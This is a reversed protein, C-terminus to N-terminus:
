FSPEANGKQFELWGDKNSFGHGVLRLLTDNVLSFTLDHSFAVYNNTKDFVAYLIIRNQGTSEDNRQWQLHWTGSFSGCLIDVDEWDTYREQGDVSVLQRVQFKRLGSLIGDAHFTLREFHRKRDTIQETHWTGTLLPIYQQRLQETKSHAEPDAYEPESSCSVFCLALLLPLFILKM